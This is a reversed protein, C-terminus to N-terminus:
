DTRRLRATRLRAVAADGDIVADLVRDWRPPGDGTLRSFIALLLAFLQNGALECLATAPDSAARLSAPDPGPFRAAARQVM